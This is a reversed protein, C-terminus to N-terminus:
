FMHSEIKMQSSLVQLNFLLSFPFTKANGEIININM